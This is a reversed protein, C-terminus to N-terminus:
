TTFDEHTSVRLLSLKPSDEMKQVKKTATTSQSYVQQLQLHQLHGILIKGSSPIRHAFIVRHKPIIQKFDSIANIYYPTM